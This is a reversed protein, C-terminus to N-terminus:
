SKRNQANFIIQKTELKNKLRIFDLSKTNLKTLESKAIEFNNNAIADEILNELDFVYKDRDIDKVTDTATQNLSFGYQPTVETFNINNNLIVARYIIYNDKSEVSPIVALSHTTVIFRMKSFKNALVKLINRQWKPHLYTDIEDILVVGEMEFINNQAKYNYREHATYYDNVQYCRSVLEGIWYFLNQFGQSVLDLSIMQKPQEILNLEIIINSTKDKGNIDRYVRGFRIENENQNDSIVLSILKFVDNIRGLFSEALSINGNNKEELYNAHTVDLWNKLRTLKKHAEDEILPLLDIPEPFNEGNLDKPEKYGGGQPFGLFLYETQNDTLTKFGDVLDNAIVGFKEDNYFEIENNYITDTEYTLTILGGQNEYIPKSNDDYGNIKLWKGFTERDILQRNENMLSHTGVLALALARLITSKGSGNYGILCTIRKELNITVEAFHGINKLTLSKLQLPFYKPQTIVINQITNRITNIAAIDEEFYRQGIGEIKDADSRGLNYFKLQKNIEILDNHIFSRLADQWSEMRYSRRWVNEVTLTKNNQTRTFKGLDKVLSEFLKAKLESGRANLYIYMEGKINISISINDAKTVRDFANWFSFYLTDDGGNFWYGKELRNHNQLNNKRLTFYLNNNTEREQILLELLENHLDIINEYM